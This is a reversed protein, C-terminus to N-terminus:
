KAQEFAAVEGAEGIVIPVRQHLKTPVVDLVRQAGTSAAGGAQEVLLAMPNCEYILRLKGPKDPTRMDQPYLFVGGQKFIRHLDAVMSGAWRMNYDKGLPGDKGLMYADIQDRVPQSWHRRNSINVAFMRAGSPMAINEGTMLWQDDMPDLTFEFVGDGLTLMMVTQPGYIVYGAAAQTSGPKLFDAVTAPGAPAPLISFITGVSMVKDINSSGDLPDFAAVYSGGSHPLPLIDDMEESALAAVHRNASLIDVMIENTKVDLEKQTEGQVNESELSGLMGTLAGSRLIASIETCATAISNIVTGLEASPDLFSALSTRTM